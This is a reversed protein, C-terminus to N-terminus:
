VRFGRFPISSLARLFSLDADLVALPVSHKNCNVTVRHYPGGGVSICISKMLSVVLGFYGGEEASPLLNPQDAILGLATVYSVIGPCYILPLTLELVAELSLKRMAWIRRIESVVSSLYTAHKKASPKNLLAASLISTKTIPNNGPESPEDRLVLLIGCEGAHSYYDELSLDPKLYPPSTEMFRKFVMFAEECAERRFFSLHCNNRLYGVISIRLLAGDPVVITQSAVITERHKYDNQGDMHRKVGVHHPSDMRLFAVTLGEFINWDAIKRAFLEFRNAINPDSTLFDEDAYQIGFIRALQCMAKFVHVYKTTEPHFHPMSSGFDHEINYSTRETCETSTFGFNYQQNGRSSGSTTSKWLERALQQWNIDGIIRDIGLSVFELTGENAVRMYADPALYSRDCSYVQPPLHKTRASYEDAVNLCRQRISDLEHRNFGLRKV